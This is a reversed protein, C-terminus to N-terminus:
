GHRRRVNVMVPPTLGVYPAKWEVPDGDKVWMKERIEFEDGDLIQTEPPMYVTLVSDVPNADVLTPENTAGFGILCNRVLVQQKEFEPNGYEDVGTQIRRHIFVPEDGSLIM